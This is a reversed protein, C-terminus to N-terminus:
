QGKMRNEDFYTDGKLNIDKVIMKKDYYSDVWRLSDFM